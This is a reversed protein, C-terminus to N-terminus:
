FSVRQWWCGVSWLSMWGLPRGRRSNKGNLNKRLMSLLPDTHDRGMGASSTALEM